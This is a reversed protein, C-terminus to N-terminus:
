GFVSPAYGGFQRLAFEPYNEGFKKWLEGGVLGYAMTIAGAAANIADDHYPGSPHDISDKGTGRSTRRELNCLQTILLRNDLLEVKGANLIPLLETYIESKSHEAFRYTIGNRAFAQSYRRLRGHM